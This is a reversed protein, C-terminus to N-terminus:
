EVINGCRLYCWGAYQRQSDPVHIWPRAFYPVVHESVMPEHWSCKEMNRLLLKGDVRKRITSGLSTAFKSHAEINQELDDDLTKGFRKLVNDCLKKLEGNNMETIEDDLFETDASLDTQGLAWSLIPVGQEFYFELAFYKTKVDDDIAKTIKPYASDFSATKDTSDGESLYFHKELAKQTDMEAFLIRNFDSVVMKIRETDANVIFHDNVAKRNFPVAIIEERKEHSPSYSTYIAVSREGKISSLFM